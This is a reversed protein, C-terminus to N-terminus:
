LRAVWKWGRLMLDTVPQSVAGFFLDYAVWSWVFGCILAFSIGKPVLPALPASDPTLIAGKRTRATAATSSPPLRHRLPPHALAANGPPRSHWSTQARRGPAGMRPQIATARDSYWFSAYIEGFSFLIIIYGRKLMNM